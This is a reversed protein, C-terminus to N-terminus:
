CVDTGATPGMSVQVVMAGTTGKAIGFAFMVPGRPVHALALVLHPGIWDSLLGTLAQSVGCGAHFATVFRGLAAVSLGFSVAVVTSVNTWILRDISARFFRLWMVFLIAWRCGTRGEVATAASSMLAYAVVAQAGM